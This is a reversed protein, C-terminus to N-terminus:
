KGRLFDRLLPAFEPLAAFPKGGFVALRGTATKALAEFRARLAPLPLFESNSCNNGEACTRRSCNCAARQSRDHEGLCTSLAVARNGRPVWEVNAALRAFVRIGFNVGILKKQFFIRNESAFYRLFLRGAAGPPRRPAGQALVWLVAAFIHGPAQTKGSSHM